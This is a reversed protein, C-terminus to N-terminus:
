ITSEVKGINIVPVVIHVLCQVVCCLLSVVLVKQTGTSNGFATLRRIHQQLQLLKSLLVAIAVAIVVLVVSTTTAPIHCHCAFALVVIAFVCLVIVLLALVVVAIGYVCGVCICRVLTSGLIMVAQVYCSTVARSAGAARCAAFCFVACFLAFYLLLLLLLLLLLTYSFLICRSHAITTTNTTPQTLPTCCDDDAWAARQRCRVVFSRASFVSRSQRSLWPTASNALNESPCSTSLVITGSLSLSFPLSPACCLSYLLTLSHAHSVLCFLANPFLIFYLCFLIFLLLM